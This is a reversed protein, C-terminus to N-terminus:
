DAHLDVGLVVGLREEEAVVSGDRLLRVAGLWAVVVGGETTLDQVFRREDQSRDQSRPADVLLGGLVAVEPALPREEIPVVDIGEDLGKAGEM